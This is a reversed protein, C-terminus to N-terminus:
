MLSFKKIFAAWMTKGFALKGYEKDYGAKPLYIALGNSNRVAYGDVSNVAVLRSPGSAVAAIVEDAARNVKEDRVNENILQCFHVLDCNDQCSYVQVDAAARKVAPLTSPNSGVLFLLQHAFADVKDCVADFKSCDVASQTTPEVGAYVAKYTQSSLCAFESPTLRPNEVLPGLVLDYPLGDGPATEESASIFDVSDKVEYGVEMMQMLCADMCLVDVNKGLILRIQRMAEGLAVTSICTGAQDDYSIARAVPRGAQRLTWGSGHNWINLAYNRAPFKERAWAVFKVLEAPDGMDVEPITELVEVTDKMIYLKEVPGSVHDQIVVINVDPTSGIKKMEAIDSHGFEDLDNDGNLFVMYTWQACPATAAHTIEAFTMLFIVAAVLAPAIFIKSKAM